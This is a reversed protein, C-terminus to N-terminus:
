RACVSGDIELGRLCQAEREWNRQEGAGVLHDLLATQQVQEPRSNARSPRSGICPCTRQQHFSVYAPVPRSRTQKEIIHYPTIRSKLPACPTIEDRQNATRRVTANAM